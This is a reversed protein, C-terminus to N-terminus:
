GNFVEFGLESQEMDMKEEEKDLPTTRHRVMKCYGLGTNNTFNILATIGKKDKFLSPITFDPM